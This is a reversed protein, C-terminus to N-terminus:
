TNLILNIAPHDLCDYLRATIYDVDVFEVYDDETNENKNYHYSEVEEQKLENKIKNKSPYYYKTKYTKGNTLQRLLTEVKYLAVQIASQNTIFNIEDRQEVMDFEFEFTVKSM